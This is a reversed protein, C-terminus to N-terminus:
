EGIEEILGDCVAVNEVDGDNLLDDDVEIEDDNLEVPQGVCVRLPVFVAHPVLETEEDVLEDGEAHEVTETVNM